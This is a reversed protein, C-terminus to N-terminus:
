NCHTTVVVSPTEGAAVGELTWTVSGADGDKSSHANGGFRAVVIPVGVQMAQSGSSQAGDPLNVVYSLKTGPRDLQLQITAGGNNSTRMKYRFRTVGHLVGGEARELTTVPDVISCEPEVRLM